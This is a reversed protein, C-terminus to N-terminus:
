DGAGLEDTVDHLRYPQLYSSMYSRDELLPVQVGYCRGLVLRFTNVPTLGEPIPSADCGPLYLASFNSLREVTYNVPPTPGPLSTAGSGHDSQLIILPPSESQRIVEGLSELLRANLYTVQDAYYRSYAVRDGDYPTDGLTYASTHVIPEGEPGFVFPPHPAILHAFTFTPAPDAAIGPLSDLAFEIRQRHARYPAELGLRLSAPLKASAELLLRGASTELLLEEFPTLPGFLSQDQDRLEPTLYRDADTWESGRYGTAFAVTTYGMEESWQRMRNARIASRLPDLDRSDPDQSPLLTDVYDMNLTTALSLATNPYNSHSNELVTFGLAELEEIFPRNDYGHVKELIDARAYGDVVIYYIDPRTETTGQGQVAPSGSLVTHSSPLSAAGLRLIPLLLMAASILNLGLTVGHLPKRYRFCAILGGAAMAGWLPALFRHRGLLIGASTWGETQNYVHGYTFLLLLLWSTGIAARENERTLTRLLLFLAGALVLSVLAARFGALGEVQGINAALLSLAPLVAFFLPHLISRRGM